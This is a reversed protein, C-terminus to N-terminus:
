HSASALMSLALEPREIISARFVSAEIRLLRALTSNMTPTADPLLAAHECNFKREFLIQQGIAEAHLWFAKRASKGLGPRIAHRDLFFGDHKGIGASKPVEDAIGPFTLLFPACRLDGEAGSDPAALRGPRPKSNRWGSSTVIGAQFLLPRVLTLHRGGLRGYSVSPFRQIHPAVM